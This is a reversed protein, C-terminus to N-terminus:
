SGIILKDKIVMLWQQRRGEIRPNAYKILTKDTLAEILKDYLPKLKIKTNAFDKYDRLNAQTFYFIDKKIDWELETSLFKKRNYDVDYDKAMNCFALFQTLFEETVNRRSSVLTEFVNKLSLKIGFAERFLYAGTTLIQYIERIRPYHKDVNLMGRSNEEVRKIIKDINITENAKKVLEDLDKDKWDKTYDYLLSFLKEKKLEDRLKMWEPDRKISEKFDLIIARSLNATDSFNDGLDQSTICLPTVKPKYLQDKGSTKRSWDSKSTCSEKILNVTRKDVNEFDDIMRPFTSATIMDEFRRWSSATMGSCHEKYHGYFDTTWFNATTSKGGNREGELILVPFLGFKKIFYLKFPSIISWSILIDLYERPMQTMKIFRILKKTIEEKKKQSHKKYMKEGRKLVKRQEDTIWMISYDRSMKM